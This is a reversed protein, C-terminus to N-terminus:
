RGGCNIRNRSLDLITLTQNERLGEELYRVGLDTMDCNQLRLKKLKMKPNKLAEALAKAALDAVPRIREFSSQGQIVLETITSEKLADAMLVAVNELADTLFRFEIYRVTNNRKLADGLVAIEEFTPDCCLISLMEINANEELLAAAAFFTLPNRSMKTISLFGGRVIKAKESRLAEEDLKKGKAKSVVEAADTITEEITADMDEIYSDIKYAVSTMAELAEASIQCGCVCAGSKKCSHASPLAASDALTKQMMSSPAAM